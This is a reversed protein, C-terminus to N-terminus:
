AVSQTNEVEESGALSPIEVVSRKRRPPPVPVGTVVIPVPPLERVAMVSPASPSSSPSPSTSQRMEATKNTNSPWGYKTFTYPRLLGLTSTTPSRRSSLKDGGLQDLYPQAVEKIRERFCFSIALCVALLIFVLVIIAIKESSMSDSLPVGDRVQVTPQFSEGGVSNDVDELWDETKVNNSTSDTNTAERANCNVNVAHDCTM